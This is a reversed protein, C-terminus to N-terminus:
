IPSWASVEVRKCCQKNIFQESNVLKYLKKSDKKVLFVHGIFGNSWHYESEDKKIIEVYFYKPSKMETSGLGGIRKNGTFNDGDALLFKEFICQAIGDGIHITIPTNGENRIKVWYHGETGENNYFDSDGIGTTNALRIFFNFGLGSRPHFVLKEDDLMYAKWGTPLKVSENPLLTFNLTSFVDYGASHSTKRKPLSIEDYDCFFDYNGEIKDLDKVWQEQSVKEFGRERITNTM